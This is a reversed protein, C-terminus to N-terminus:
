RVIAMAAAFDSVREACCTGPEVTTVVIARFPVVKPTFIPADECHCM